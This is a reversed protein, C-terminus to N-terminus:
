EVPELLRRAEGGRLVMVRGALEDDAILAVVADAVEDLALPTPAAARESTSMRQLEEQARETLIWDPVVCNVRVGM